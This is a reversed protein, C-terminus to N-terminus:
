AINLPISDTDLVEDDTQSSTCKTKILEARIRQSGSNMPVGSYTWIAGTYSSDFHFQYYIPAGDIRLRALFPPPPDLPIAAWKTKDGGHKKREEEYKWLEEEYKKKAKEYLEQGEKLLSADIEWSVVVTIPASIPGSTPTSPLPSNIRITSV